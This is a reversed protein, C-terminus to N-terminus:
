RVCRVYFGNSTPAQVASGTSFDVSWASGAVKPWSWFSANPTHPFANRDIAYNELHDVVYEIEGQEDVLTLLEKVSPLRWQNPGVGSLILARCRANADDWSTSTAFGREWQLHTKSDTITTNFQNYTDYQGVPAGATAPIALGLVTAGATVCVVLRRNM